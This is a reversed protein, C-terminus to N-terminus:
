LRGRPVDANAELRLQLQSAEAVFGAANRVFWDKLTLGERTLASYLERKLEPDVEVVIRGSSGISM